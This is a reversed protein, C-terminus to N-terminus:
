VDHGTAFFLIFQWEGDAEEMREAVRATAALSDQPAAYAGQLAFVGIARAHDVCAVQGGRGVFDDLLGVLAEGDLQVGLARAEDVQASSKQDVVLEIRHERQETLAQAGHQEAELGEALEYGVHVELGGAVREGIRQERPERARGDAAVRVIRCNAGVHELGHVALLRREVVAGDYGLALQERVGLHGVIAQEGQQVLHAASPRTAHHGVRAPRMAVDLLEPRHAVLRANDIWRAVDDLELGDEVVGSVVGVEVDRRNSLKPGLLVM